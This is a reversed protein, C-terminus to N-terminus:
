TSSDAGHSNGHRGGSLGAGNWSGLRGRSDALLLNVGDVRERFKGGHTVGFGGAGQRHVIVVEGVHSNFGQRSM